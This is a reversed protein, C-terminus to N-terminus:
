HRQPSFYKDLQMVSDATYDVTRKTGDSDVLSYSGSVVDGDRTEHQAKVDGTLSDHVDYSYSYQPHPDHEADVTKTVITKAVPAAYAYPIGAAYTVHHEPILGANACAM